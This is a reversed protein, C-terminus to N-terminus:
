QQNGRETGGWWVSRTGAGLSTGAMFYVLHCAFLLSPAGSMEADVEVLDHPTHEGPLYIVCLLIKCSVHGAQRDM